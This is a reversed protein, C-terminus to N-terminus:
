CTGTRSVKSCVTQPLDSLLMSLLVFLCAFLVNCSQTVIMTSSPNEQNKKLSTFIVIPSQRATLTYEMFQFSFFKSFFFFLCRSGSGSGPGSGPGPGPGANQSSGKNNIFTM